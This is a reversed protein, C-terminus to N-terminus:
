QAASMVKENAFDEDGGQTEGGLVRSYVDCIRSMVKEASYEAEVRLKLRNGLSSRREPFALLSGLADALKQSDAPPVLIGAAGHDLVEPCQGVNTAVAPLGAMGYELLSLPLGESLSSLVGIDCSRLIAPVDNRAGLYIVSRELGLDVIQKLVSDCYERDAFDGVLLLHADPFKGKLGVMAQLLNAHDKQPRINAVCVIRNGPTGPLDVKHQSGGELRVLNKIYWVRNAPVQLLQRSWDALPGNVAIVGGIRQTVAKYLWVPRDNFAYRGYHDHWVVAPYPPFLSALRAFFLASAHAHLIRIEHARIFKVLRSVAALDVTSGRKLFLRNVHPAVFESLPGEERTTCLFSEYRDQPLLNALNVAVREAGGIRLADLVHMVGIRSTGAGNMTRGGKGGGSGGLYGSHFSEM